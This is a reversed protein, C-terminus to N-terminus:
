FWPGLIAAVRILCCNYLQSEKKKNCDMRRRRLNKPLAYDSAVTHLTAARSHDVAVNVVRLTVQFSYNLISGGQDAAKVSVVRM